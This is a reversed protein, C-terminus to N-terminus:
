LRVGTLVAVVDEEIEEVVVVEPEASDDLRKVGAGEVTLETTLEDEAAEGVEEDLVVEDTTDGVPSDEAPLTGRGV